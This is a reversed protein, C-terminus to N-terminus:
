SAALDGGCQALLALALVGLTPEGLLAVVIAPPVAYWGDAIVVALREPHARRRLLDPLEGLVAGLTVLLPVAEAPTLFLMPVFVVETPRILGTGLPFRVRRTLAYSLVLLLSTGLPETDATLAMVVAVTM